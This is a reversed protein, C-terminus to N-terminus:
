GHHAVEGAAVPQRRRDPGELVVQMCSEILRSAIRDGLYETFREAPLNTTYISPREAEYRSNILRYTIEEVYESGKAIGLDDLMLVPTEKLRDLMYEPDHDRAPRPRMMAALDAHTLSKWGPLQPIGSLLRHPRCVAQRLAGFGQHTKGRGVPGLLLLSPCAVPNSHFQAVWGQVLPHDAVADRYRSPFREDCRATADNVVRDFEGPDCEDPQIM